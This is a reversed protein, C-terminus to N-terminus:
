KARRLIYDDPDRLLGTKPDYCNDLYEEFRDLYVDLFEEYVDVSETSWTQM